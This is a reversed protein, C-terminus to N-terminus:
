FLIGLHFFFFLRLCDRNERLVFFEEIPIDIKFFKFLRLSPQSTVGCVVRRAAHVHGGSPPLGGLSWRGGPGGRNSRLSDDTDKVQELRFM